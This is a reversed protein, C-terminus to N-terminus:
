DKYYDRCYLGVRSDDYRSAVIKYDPFAEDLEEGPYSNDGVIQQTDFDRLLLVFARWREKIEPESSDCTCLVEESLDLVREDKEEDYEILVTAKGMLVIEKRDHNLAFYVVGM